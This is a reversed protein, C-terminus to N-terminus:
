SERELAPEEGIVAVPKPSRGYVHKIMVEGLIGGMAAAEMALIVYLGWWGLPNLISGHPIGTIYLINIYSLMRVLLPPFYCLWKAGRGFIRAVLLGSLFPVFFLDVAWAFSFTSLGSFLEIQVGLLRDGLHNLLMGSLLAIIGTVTRQNM